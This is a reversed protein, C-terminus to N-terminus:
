NGKLNTGSGQGDLLCNHTSLTYRLEASDSIRLALIKSGVSCRMAADSNMHPQSDSIIRNTDEM